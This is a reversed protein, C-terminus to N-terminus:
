QYWKSKPKYSTQLKAKQRYRELALSILKDLLKQYPMGSAKWLAPYMSISTFGPITNVESVYLKSNRSLLFDVRAMGSCDIITFARIALTRIKDALKKSLLAPIVTRSQGDVYKANYDYFENSAIIEGPVSARPDDNGLVAVEIERPSLVAKEVIIKRDYQMAYMIAQKLSRENRAKSIGVSSGLNAPKVFVPFRLKKIKATILNPNRAYEGSLFHLYDVVPLGAQRFLEKQIVKDMGVASALVNAGVYPINALELLGQVTGDEGYTGHLVPIVVDLLKTEAHSRFYKGELSVLRKKTADPSIINENSLEAHRGSKLTALPNGSTVWRGRKTIGIPIVEYKAKDLAGIISEASALSVEHEGSRGGFIVGVRLKRKM